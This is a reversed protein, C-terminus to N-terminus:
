FSEYVVTKLQLKQNEDLYALAIFGNDYNAIDSGFRKELEYIIGSKNLYEKLEEDLWFENEDQDYRVDNYYTEGAEEYKYREIIENIKEKM